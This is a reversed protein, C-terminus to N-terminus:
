EYPATEVNLTYIFCRRSNRRHKLTDRGLVEQVLELPNLTLASIFIAPHADKNKISFGARNNSSAVGSFSSHSSAMSEASALRVESRARSPNSIPM